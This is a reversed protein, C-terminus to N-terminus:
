MTPRESKSQSNTWLEKGSLLTQADTCQEGLTTDNDREEHTDYWKPDYLLLRLLEEATTEYILYRLCSRM